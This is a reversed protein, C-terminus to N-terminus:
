GMHRTVDAAITAGGADAPIISVFKGDPGMLFLLSSHDVSYDAGQGHVAYYVHYARAAQAVQADTGTLGLLSPGFAETYSGMKAPTDRKPDVTIFVPQVRAANAGLKDMADAVQTLTTPCADPCFTYGFYILLYKGRLSQDTVTHGQPDVLTFPGGIATVPPPPENATYLFAGGTAAAVCALAMGAFVLGRRRAGPSPTGATGDSATQM